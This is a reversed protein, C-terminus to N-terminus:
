APRQSTSPPGAGGAMLGGAPRQWGDGDLGSQDGSKQEPHRAAPHGIGEQCPCGDSLGSGSSIPVRPFLRRPSGPAKRRPSRREGARADGHLCQGGGVLAHGKQHRRFAPRDKMGPIQVPPVPLALVGDPVPVHFRVERRYASGEGPGSSRDPWAAEPDGDPPPRSGHGRYKRSSASIRRKRGM